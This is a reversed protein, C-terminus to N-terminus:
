SIEDKKLIIRIPQAHYKWFLYKVKARDKLNPLDRHERRFEELYSCVRDQIIDKYHTPIPSIDLKDWFETEFLRSNKEYNKILHIASHDASNDKVPTMNLRSKLAMQHYEWYTYWDYIEYDLNSNYEDRVEHWMARAEENPMLIMGPVGYHPENLINTFTYKNFFSLFAFTTEGNGLHRYIQQFLKEPDPIHELLDTAFIVEFSEDLSRELLNIRQFRVPSAACMKRAQKLRTESIDIGLADAAGSKLCAQALAGNSCGIDLCKKNKVSYGSQNLWTLLRLHRHPAGLESEMYLAALPNDIHNEYIHNLYEKIYDDDILNYKLILAELVKEKQSILKNKFYAHDNLIKYLNIGRLAPILFERFLRLLKKLRSILKM